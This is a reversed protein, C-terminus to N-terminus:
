DHNESRRKQYDSRRKVANLKVQLGQRIRMDLDPNRMGAIHYNCLDILLQEPIQVNKM